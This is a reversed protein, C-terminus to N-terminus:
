LFVFFLDFAAGHHLDLHGADHRLFDLSSQSVDPCLIDGKWSQGDDSFLFFTQCQAVFDSLMAHTLIARTLCLFEVVLHVGFCTWKVEHFWSSKYSGPHGCKHPDWSAALSSCLECQM